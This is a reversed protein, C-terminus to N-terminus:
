APVGLPAFISELFSRREAAPAKWHRVTVQIPEAFDDDKRLPNPGPAWVQGVEGDYFTMPIARHAQRREKLAKLHGLMARTDLRFESCLDSVSAQRNSSIFSLIAIRTIADREHHITTM